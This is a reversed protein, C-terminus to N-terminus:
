RYSERKSSYGKSKREMMEFAGERKEHKAGHKKMESRLSHAKKSAKKKAAM